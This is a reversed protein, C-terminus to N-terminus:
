AKMEAARLQHALTQALAVAQAAPGETSDITATRADGSGIVANISIWNHSINAYCGIPLKCGGGIIGTFAQEAEVAALTPAHQLQKVLDLLQQNGAAIEVSLVGQGTAPVFTAPDLFETVEHLRGLRELGAAALIIADYADTELKRLRTEVNGRVSEVRLDTRYHLLLATRRLSDTGILAGHPLGALKAGTKSVLVDRPDARELVPLHVLGAPAEPPIDKLSHVALDIEGNTLAQEIEATFWAKGITDLPIPATNTDGKTVITKVKIALKPDLKRLADAVLGTQILALRSGRTGIILHRTM